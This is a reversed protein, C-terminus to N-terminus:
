GASSPRSRPLTPPRASLKTFFGAVDMNFASTRAFVQADGTWGLREDRQPCDTPVDLFNGKQGWVINRQLQNVLKDSTELEGTRAMDSHIVIGTLSGTDLTGPYGEVAVYRFGQFTFHPEFTEPGGGKLTYRVTQQAKRLNETYFNGQKDLVEAHRLTVTTGPEGRVNLKVWGVLNQGMDVVTEGRPTRLIQVPRVEHIRRVPPGAPAILHDKSHHAVSVPAWARDDFGAASWGTKERRADYTEGNYISSFATPGTSAKWSGDSLLSERRGDRYTVEMQWLLALRDGYINRRDDWALDGRYWGDGLSVGVANAGAKLLPTVDYTQYQLRKNYSTWGPTFLLDGVRRGNLEMEYLGHSTVYVRARAVPGALSLERRLLPSPRTSGTDDPLQPEIWSAEWDTPELLGMEWHAPTSWESATGAGDWVRVQWSYRQRSSLPPGGYERHVSDASTVRGSDWVLGRPSPARADGRWVRVQYASQVVGREDSQLRWFLRPKRVDIGLPDQMYETRLGVVNPATAASADGAIASAVAVVCAAWLWTGYGLRAEM